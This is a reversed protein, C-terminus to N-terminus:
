ERTKLTNLPEAFERTTKGFRIRKAFTNLLPKCTTGGLKINDVVILGNGITHQFELVLSHWQDGRDVM